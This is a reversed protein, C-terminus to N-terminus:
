NIRTATSQIGDHVERLVARVEEDDVQDFEQYHSGVAGLFSEPKDLVVVEDAIVELTDISDRPAVPVAVIVRKARKSQMARVAAEMTLGTAIGDDVLIVTKDKVDPPTFEDGYYLEQRHGILQRAAAVADKLWEDDLGLLEDENYVPREDEAVAGIAYEAYSPHGIKRVLVLGLPASLEKAVEAGLVIGGRPLALVVTDKSKFHRLVKALRKGADQRNIYSM